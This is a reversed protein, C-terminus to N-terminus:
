GTGFCLAKEESTLREALLFTNASALHRVALERFVIGYVEVRFM